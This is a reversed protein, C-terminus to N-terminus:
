AIAPWMNFGDLPLYGEAVGGAVGEVLTPLWDSVHM